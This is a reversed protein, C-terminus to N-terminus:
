IQLYPPNSLGLISSCKALGPSPDAKALKCQFINILKKLGNSFIPLVSEPPYTVNVEFYIM